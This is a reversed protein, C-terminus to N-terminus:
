CLITAVRNNRREKEKRKKADEHKWKCLFCFMEDEKVPNVKCDLCRKFDKVGKKM